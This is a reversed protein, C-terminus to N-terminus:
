KIENLEVKREKALKVMHATGKGGPFAIVLDPAGDEIMRINRMPGAGRGHNRWLAPFTLNPVKNEKAWVQALHDAGIKTGDRLKTM